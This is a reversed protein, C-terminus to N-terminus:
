KKVPQSLTDAKNKVAKALAKYKEINQKVSPDDPYYVRIREWIGALKEYQRTKEYLDILIRYPSFYSTLNAPNSKMDTLADTEVEAYLSKATDVADAGYYLNAVNFLLQYDMGIVKRPMKERMEDLTHIALDKENKNLYYYALSMFINRYNQLMRRHNDDFFINPNNLGRFKFGPKYTKSYGPNEQIQKKLIEPNIFEYKGSGKEPVLRSAMGETKLYDDLGIKGDQSVTMAFYIPRKWANAEVIEKVMIDQIRIGKVGGYNLTPKMTWTISGAKLASSDSINYKQYLDKISLDSDPKPTSISVQRTDWRIPALQDIQSDSLRIDVTGVNYPDNNKLQKIYWTTNLLSLNAIRVDRRVGEVDQLYWLPFTDNDGNTFLIANPACSQLLNYSYDWPVWNESRDHTFYNTKLMNVPVFIACLTLAGAAAANRYTPNKVKEFILAAIEKVAIAIWISFVFFAGVYFYDRERPQPNQQNQYFATLYGMLIFMIMFVSAMKWDKRFHFYIGLLGLLFPIGYLSDRVDGGFQIGLIPGFINGIKNFPAIDVGSDQIWSERGAYNWMWYRTMMHNMQYNWFFDLDSSYNNYTEQHMGDSVFRRKFIPFDGYQERNLYTVLEAFTDPDNEDMPPHDNARIIIMAFTTFGILILCLSMFILHLTPKKERTSYYVGYALLGLLLIFLLAGISDSSGAINALIGPLIKVIGPYVVFLAIGGIILPLYFSNRNFIKRWYLGMIVISIGLVIMKFKTDYDQYEEATPPTSSTQSSWMAFAVLLIIGIHVLFIYGTKKTEEENRVYRRFMIVMVVPVIALISMLHVGTAIGIIYAIMLLYKENDKENAKEHWQMMLWTVFAFLFTSMAYVEAEVGNFWFTDSFSFSLAGISAATYTSVAEWINEPKKGRYNEILKVAILYLFLISFASTLVSIINIRLAINQAIPLMSFIRDIISIFPAGPPHPVQLYYGAALFEGCDWFSVSPQVTSLLVIFSILFVISAFIRNLLKYNM